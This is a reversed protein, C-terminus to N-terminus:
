SPTDLPRIRGGAANATSMADATCKGAQMECNWKKGRLPVSVTNGDASLDITMFPLKNPDLKMGTAEGLATALKAHDFAPQKTQKAADFMVFETGSPTTDRYWFHDDSVWTPRIAHYVLPMTKYSLFQEAKSYDDSTLAKPSNPQQANAILSATILLLSTCVKLLASSRNQLIMIIELSFPYTCQGCSAPILPCRRVYRM